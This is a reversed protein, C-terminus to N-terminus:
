YFCFLYDIIHTFCRNKGFIEIGKLYLDKEIVSWGCTQERSFSSLSRILSVETKKNVETDKINSGYDNGHDDKALSPYENSEHQLQNCTAPGDQYKTDPLSSISTCLMDIERSPTSFDSASIKKQKKDAPGVHKGPAQSKGLSMNEQKLNKRKGVNVVTKLPFDSVNGEIACTSVTYRRPNGVAESSVITSGNVDSCQGNSPALNITDDDPNSDESESPSASEMKQFQKALFPVEM